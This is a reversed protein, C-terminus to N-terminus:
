AKVARVTILLPFYADHTELERISLEERAMGALFGIGTLVNGYSQVTVHDAGFVDGFLKNCSASTFRWFDGELGYRTALRSVVPVSVLLVGGPRLMRHAHQVAARSDYILQLTQTLIVCDFQDSAVTDAAALDAIITAQPNETDVDLVDVKEVATGFEDAYASDKVELVHGKIDNRYTSLFQEIYYRDIPTGREFGWHASLPSTRRLTGLWAPHRLRHMRKRWKEREDSLDSMTSMRDIM